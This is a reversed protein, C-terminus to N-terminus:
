RNSQLSLLKCTNREIWFPKRYVFVLRKVLIPCGNNKFFM